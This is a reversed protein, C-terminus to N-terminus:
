TCNAPTVHTQEAARKPHLSASTAEGLHHSVAVLAGQANFIRFLVGILSKLGEESSGPTVQDTRPAVHSPDFHCHMNVCVLTTVKVSAEPVVASGVSVADITEGTPIRHPDPFPSLPHPPPFFPAGSTM